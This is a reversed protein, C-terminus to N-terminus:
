VGAPVLRGGEELYTAACRHCTLPGTKPLVEGCCCVWGIRKAPCGAMLANPLVNSAVVAGAAVFAYEGIEHGCVVTSNAGLSARKHVITKAYEDKRTVHCRPHKVNTFVASPGVFVEDELIVGDYLSVNNQIRCGNGLHSGPAMFCNQGLSCNEGISSGAMVHCFHWVASGKGIPVAPHVEATPHIKVGTGAGFVPVVPAGLRKMSDLMADLIAATAAGQQADNPLPSRDNIAAAFARLETEMPDNGELTILEGEEPGCHQLAPQGPLGALKIPYYRLSRQGPTDVWLALGKRGSVVLKQEKAPELWSATGQAFLGGPFDMGWQVTDAIGPTVLELGRATVRTPLRGALGLALAIDHPAFSQLVNEQTRVKGLKSRVFRLSVLEGLRDEALLTGLAKRAPHHELLHGVALVLGRKEALAKLALADKGSLALPKEMLVPFGAELLATGLAAHLGAPAAVVAGQVMGPTLELVGALVPLGPNAAAIAARRQPDTEVVAGLGGLKKLTELHRSGWEGAGVLALKPFSGMTM